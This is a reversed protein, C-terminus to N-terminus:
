YEELELQLFQHSKNQLTNEKIYVIQHLRHAQKMHRIHFLNLDTAKKVKLETECVFCWEEELSFIWKSIICGFQDYQQTTLGKEQPREEGTLLMREPSKQWTRISLFFMHSGEDTLAAHSSVRPPLNSGRWYAESWLNFLFQERVQLWQAERIDKIKLTFAHWELIFSLIHESKVAVRNWCCFFFCYNWVDILMLLASLKIFSLLLM